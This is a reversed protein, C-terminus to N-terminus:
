VVRRGEEFGTLLKVYEAAQTKWSRKEYFSSANKVFADREEPRQYLEVVCRALDGANEPEYYKIMREDFYSQIIELRPAVVPIRLYTYELLKVPMMFRETALSRRNGIVGLDMGGVMEAIKEAPFFSKSFYVKGDLGLTDALSLAEPLFDGSGYISLHVPIEGGVLSIAKLMIDIGLRKAITGHYILKFKNDSRPKIIARFTEEHPLNMIVTIKGAPIKCVSELYRKQMHDACLVYSAIWASVKQEAILLKILINEESVNFKVMYNVPMLDHVDLLLKAGLLKAVVATCIIFNPMNHVHVAEYREKIAMYSVKLFAKLSFILYSSIYFLTNRGQYKSTLYFVRSSGLEEYGIKGAERLAFIDVSGGAQEISRVYAKIRADCGYEAYAIMCVKIRTTMAM